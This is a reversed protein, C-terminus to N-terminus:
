TVLPLLDLMSRYNTTGNFVRPGVLFVLLVVILILIAIGVLMGFAFGRESADSPASPTGPSINIQSLADPVERAPERTAIPAFAM